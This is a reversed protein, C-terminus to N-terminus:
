DLSPYVIGEHLPSNTLADLCKEINDGYLEHVDLVAQRPFGM